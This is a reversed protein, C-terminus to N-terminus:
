HERINWFNSTYAVSWDAAVFNPSMPETDVHGDGFMVNGGPEHIKMYPASFALHPDNLWGQPLYPKDPNYYMADAMVCGRAPFALQSIKLLTGTVNWHSDVYGIALNPHCNIAYSAGTGQGGNSVTDTLDRKLPDAPCVFIHWNGALYPYLLGGFGKNEDRGPVKAIYNGVFQEYTYIGVFWPTMYDNNDLTYSLEAKAMQSLNSKCVVSYASQRAKQLAPLLIAVLVAIIAVVVLLEILTFGHLLPNAHNTIHKHKRKNQCFTKM